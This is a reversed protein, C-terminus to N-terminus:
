HGTEYKLIRVGGNKNIHHTFIALDLVPHRGPRAQGTQDRHGRGTGGSRFRFFRFSISDSLAERGTDILLQMVFLLALTVTTGLSMSIVYRAIM